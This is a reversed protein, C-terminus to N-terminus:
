KSTIKEGDAPESESESYSSSSGVGWRGWCIELGGRAVDLRGSDVLALVGACLIREATLDWALGAALERSALRM